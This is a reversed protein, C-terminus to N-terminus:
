QQEGTTPDSPGYGFEYTTQLLEFIHDLLEPNLHGPILVTKRTSDTGQDPNPTETM